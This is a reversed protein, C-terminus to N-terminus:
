KKVIQSFKLTEIRDGDGILEDANVDIEELEPRIAVVKLEHDDYLGHDSVKVTKGVEVDDVLITKVQLKMAEMEANDIPSPVEKMSSIGAYGTVYQIGRVFFLTENTMEFRVFIYGPFLMEEKKKLKGRVFSYRTIKPIFIDNEKEAKAYEEGSLTALDTYTILSAMGEIEIQKILTDKVKEEYGTFTRVGYWQKAM